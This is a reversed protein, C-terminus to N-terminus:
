FSMLLDYQFHCLFIITFQTLTLYNQFVNQCIKSDVQGRLYWTVNLLKITTRKQRKPDM